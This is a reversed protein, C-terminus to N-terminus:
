GMFRASMTFPYNYIYVPAQCITIDYLGGAIQRVYLVIGADTYTGDFLMQIYNGQPSGGFAITKYIGSLPANAFNFIMEHYDTIVTITFGGSYGPASQDISSCADTVAYPGTYSVTNEPLHCPILSTDFSISDAAIDDGVAYIEANAAWARFYYKKLADFGSYTCSFTNGNITTAIQQNTPVDPHPLTDMCFGAYAIATNGTYTITGTVTVSGDANRTLSTTKVGCDYDHVNKAVKKCASFLLAPFLICLAIPKTMMLLNLATIM